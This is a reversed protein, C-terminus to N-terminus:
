TTHIVFTNRSTLIIVTATVGFLTSINSIYETCCSSHPYLTTPPPLYLSHSPVGQCFSISFSITVTTKHCSPASQQHLPFRSLSSLVSDRPVPPLASIYLHPLPASVALMARTSRPGRGGGGGQYQDAWAVANYSPHHCRYSTLDRLPASSCGHGPGHGHPHRPPDFLALPEWSASAGRNNERLTTERSTTSEVPRGSPSASPEFPLGPQKQHEIPFPLHSGASRLSVLWNAPLM